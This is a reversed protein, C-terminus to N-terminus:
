TKDEGSQPTTLQLPAAVESTGLTLRDKDEDTETKARRRRNGDEDTETTIGPGSHTPQRDSTKCRFDPFWRPSRTRLTHAVGYLASGTLQYNLGKNHQSTRGYSVESLRQDHTEM